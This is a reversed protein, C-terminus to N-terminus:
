TGAAFAPHYTVTGRAPIGTLVLSQFYGPPVDKLVLDPEVRFGLPRTLPDGLVVCGTAGQHNLRLLAEEVLARGLGQNQHSQMVAVPGLGYWGTSGDSIAVTSVAVHAVIKGDVLAVLSITLAGARRLARVILQETGSTHAAVRFADQVLHHVADADGPREQRVMLEFRGCGQHRSGM